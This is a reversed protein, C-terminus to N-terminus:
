CKENCVDCDENFLPAKILSSGFNYYRHSLEINNRLAEEGDGKWSVSVPELTRNELYSVALETAMIATQASATAQYSIFQEGCGAVNTAVNQNPAIFNLNPSLGRKGSAQCTYACLFCGRDDPVDLVAHGGVGYGEVWTVIIPVRCRKKLLYDKFLLEQTPSGIAVIILDYNSPDNVRFFPLLTDQTAKVKCWPFQSHLHFALATSKPMGIFREGLLHRYLNEKQYIDGDIININYAGCSALKHAVECGVSGAGILAIKAESLATNGGGRVVNTKESFAEVPAVDVKWGELSELKTPLTAKKKNKKRFRISVWAEGTGPLEIVVVVWHQVVRKQGYVEDLKLFDSDPLIQLFKIWWEKVNDNSVPPFPVTKAPIVIAQGASSRERRTASVRLASLPSLSEKDGLILYNADLGFRAGPVPALLEYSELDSCPIASVLKDSSPKCIKQWETSYERLLETWNWDSDIILRTLLAVHRELSELVLTCPNSFNVSVSDRDNVCVHGVSGGEFTTTEPCRTVHALQGFKAPEILLFVPISEYDPFTALVLEYAGEGYDIKVKVSPHGFIVARDCDFGSKVLHGIIEDIVDHVM